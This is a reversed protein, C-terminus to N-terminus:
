SVSASSLIEGGEEGFQYQEYVQLLLERCPVVAGLKICALFAGSLKRHLSYVEDPPPRLRHRLMTAGLNTISQTINSSRFDYGGPKSFPFGVVFGAQVHVDIMIESEMGSLFGLRQSMEIVADRDGNACAYVKGLSPELVSSLEKPSEGFGKVWSRHLLKRLVQSYQLHPTEKYNWPMRFWEELLRLPITEQDATYDLETGFAFDLVMRLYDDVFRKPYDRAAGFDILNITRTADDYLFNSWNPDIEKMGYSDLVFVLSCGELSKEAQMFRFVFLETLTLELLKKGVYNRTGQNLLAVKDISIGSVLETTLVRKSSIDDIVMPVYFGKSNSLLDRFRKQNTAELEYDCERSLEEKAVKMAKDLYLGEPILNTYDLLLKVNEIDSEISDAVGPYQIKMAVELGDKTVAKHVQGISAAALPEYDFSTLKSKWEPGLEADLVQSLQKKPMVDAGQRVVDLAALIKPQVCSKWIVNSPFSTSPGSELAKYVSKVYFKGCKTEICLVRDEVDRQVSKGNLGLLFCHVEDMEWDNFPRSFHPSWSGGGEFFSWVDKVGQGNGVMFSLRSSVVHWERTIAKWLGVDYGGRMEKSCWGGQEEGYKGRIVQNWLTEKENAFRWNFPAGLPLGLYSSPLGRVKCGLKTALAEMNEVCGVPILDSKDLNIRLGSIAEFWMLTWSLYKMQDARRLLCRLTEMAIVFLYPSLPDGPAPVLTEDQISLMQGLKLAAGRMRCLGLALREANKESLFPSVASQKDQSNPTGFVIRKASEQITGWAIGVGLGAFGLARSFPTSPVRRERPKRRKVVVDVNGGSDESESASASQQANSDQVREPVSVQELEIANESVQQTTIAVDSEDPAYSTAPISFERVKGKTLGSADTATVVAKKVASSILTELDGARANDLVESRKVAEKAILSLGNVLRTWTGM